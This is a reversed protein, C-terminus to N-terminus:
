TCTFRGCLLLFRHDCCSQIQVGPLRLRRLQRSWQFNNDVPLPFLRVDGGAELHEYLRKIDTRIDEVKRM